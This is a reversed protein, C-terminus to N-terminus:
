YQTVSNSNTQMLNASGVALNLQDSFNSLSQSSYYHPAGFSPMRPM